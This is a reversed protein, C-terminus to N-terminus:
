FCVDYGGEFEELFILSELADDSEGLSGHVSRVVSTYRVLFTQVKFLM